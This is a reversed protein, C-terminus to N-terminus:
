YDEETNEIYISAEGSLCMKDAFFTYGLYSCDEMASPALVNMINSDSDDDNNWMRILSEALKSMVPEIGFDLPKLCVSKRIKGSEPREYIFNIIKPKKYTGYFPDFSNNIEMKENLQEILINLQESPSPLQNDLNM